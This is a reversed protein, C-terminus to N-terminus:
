LSLTKINVPKHTMHVLLIKITSQDCEEVIKKENHTNIERNYLPVQGPFKSSIIDPHWWNHM